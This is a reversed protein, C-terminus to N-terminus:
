YRGIGIKVVEKGVFDECDGCWDADQQYVLQLKPGINITRLSGKDDIIMIEDDGDYKKLLERLEKVKM